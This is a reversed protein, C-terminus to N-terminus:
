SKVKMAVQARLAAFEKKVEEHPVAPRSDDLAEQVQARFWKDYAASEHVNKLREANREYRAQRPVPEFNASAVHYEAIHVTKRLFNDVSDLSAFTRRKFHGANDRAAVIREVVGYKVLVVYGGKEGLVEASSVANAAVLEKLTNPSIFEPM